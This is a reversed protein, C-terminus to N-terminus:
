ILLLVSALTAHQQSRPAPDAAPGLAAGALPRAERPLLDARLAPTLTPPHKAGLSVGFDAPTDTCEDACDDAPNGEDDGCCALFLLEIGVHGGAVCLTAFPALLLLAAAALLAALRKPLSPQARLTM